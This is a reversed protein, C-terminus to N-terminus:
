VTLKLTGNYQSHVVMQVNSTIEKVALEWSRQGIRKVHRLLFRLLLFPQELNKDEILEILYSSFMALDEQNPEPSFAMWQKMLDKVEDLSTAGCLNPKAKVVSSFADNSGESTYIYDDKHSSSETSEDIFLQKRTHKESTPKEYVKAEPQPKSKNMPSSKAWNSSKAGRGRGRGRRAPSKQPSLGSAQKLTRLDLLKSPSATNTLATPALSELPMSDFPLTNVERNQSVQSRSATTIHPSFVTNDDKNSQFALEQITDSPSVLNTLTPLPPLSSNSETCDMVETSSDAATGTNGTPRRLSDSETASMLSDGDNPIDSSKASITGCSQKPPQKCTYKLIGSSTSKKGGPSKELKSLQIGIGRLDSVEPDVAKLLSMTEKTIIQVSDTAVPLTVAKNISDCIGHGLFKSTEKPADPSRIKLKFTITKAFSDVNKLRKTVEECLERIFKNAQEWDTFRIGYNIEASVSKRIKESQIKRDDMGRSFKYLTESMKPGFHKLLDSQSNTQLDGCTQINLSHLKQRIKRGVGPLNEVPQDRMFLNIESDSIHLQGNPKAKRTALRATLLNPGLGASATCQTAEEIDRRLMRALEEPTAGTEELVSTCDVLLEDCSVAEIDCTVSAVTDYLIKSVENYGEFDYSIPTLDPCLKKAQGMFIGNKIGFARAEYSCSAIEAMSQFEKSSENQNEPKKGKGRSHTVAVPKGKLHPKNRLGVSVFFCDMDIHMFICGCSAGPSLSILDSESTLREEVIERLKQRGPFDTIKEQLRGVYAKFEAGWTSLHHLRSHSYFESVFAADGAKSPSRFESQKDEIVQASPQPEDPKSHCEMQKPGLGDGSASEINKDFESTNAGVLKSDTKPTDLESDHMQKQVSMHRKVSPQIVSSGKYLQYDQYPLLKNAAISETIWEPKVINQDTLAVVKSNPLNIAIIHTVKERSYYHHYTGGHEQMLVKLVDSPPKTFGNVFISIGNFINSKQKVASSSEAVFQNQLKQIKANMYGGFEGWGDDTQGSRGRRGGRRGRSSM